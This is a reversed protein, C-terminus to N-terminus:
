RKAEQFWRIWVNWGYAATMLEHAVVATIRVRKTGELRYWQFEGPYYVPVHEPVTFRRAKIGYALAVAQWHADQEIIWNCHSCLSCGDVPPPTTTSGGAGVARRHQFQIDETAGCLVCMQLDRAYVARRTALTPRAM